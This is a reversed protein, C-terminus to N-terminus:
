LYNLVGTKVKTYMKRRFMVICIVRNLYHAHQLVDHSQWLFAKVQPRMFAHVFMGDHELHSNWVPLSLM